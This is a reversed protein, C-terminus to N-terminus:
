ARFVFVLVNFVRAHGRHLMLSAAVVRPPIECRGAASAALGGARIGQDRGGMEVSVFVKKHILSKKTIAWGTKIMYFTYFLSLDTSIIM